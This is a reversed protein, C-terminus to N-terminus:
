YITQQFVNLESMGTIIEMDKNTYVEKLYIGKGLIHRPDKTANEHWFM